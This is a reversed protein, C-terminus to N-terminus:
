YVRNGFIKSGVRVLTSGHQVAIHYDDSMGWSCQSFSPDNAFFMEKIQTFIIHANEFENNIQIVDDVNSAMCMCGVFKVGNLTRWHSEQLYEICEQPTFGFKTEEQAIHLQLLCPICRNNKIAQKNIEDIIRPSDASHILSVFPAIYKVKNTQLHGIFHWQIDKPLTNFKEKMEIAHSEAFIRQGTAYAELISENSHYKSVAVLQTQPPLEANIQEIAQAIHKM